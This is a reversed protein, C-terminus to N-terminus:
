DTGPSIYYEAWDPKVKHRGATQIDWRDGEITRYRVILYPEQYRQAWRRAAWQAAALNAYYERMQGGKGLLPLAPTIGRRAM